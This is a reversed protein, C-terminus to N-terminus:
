ISGIYPMINGQPESQNQPVHIPWTKSYTTVNRSFCNSKSIAEMCQSKECATGGNRSHVLLSCLLLESGFVRCIRCLSTSECFNGYVDLFCYGIPSLRYATYIINIYVYIFIYEQAGPGPVPALPGPVRALLNM